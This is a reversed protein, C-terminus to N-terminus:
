GSPGIQPYRMATGVSGMNRNLTFSNTFLPSTLTTTTATNHVRHISRMTDGLRRSMEDIHQKPLKIVDYTLQYSVALPKKKELSSPRHTPMSESLLRELSEEALTYGYGGDGNFGVLVVNIGMKIPVVKQNIQLFLLTLISDTLFRSSPPHLSVPM